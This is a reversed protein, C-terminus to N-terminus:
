QNIGDAWDMAEIAVCGDSTVNRNGGQLGQTSKMPVTGDMWYCTYLVIGPQNTRLEAQIGSWESGLMVVMEDPRTTNDNILQGNYGACTTGCHTAFEPYAQAFGLKRPQSWFDDTENRLIKLVEGTPLANGDIDLVTHAHPMFLTHNWIKQTSPNQFADLNFYTHQTPMIPTDTDPSVAEIKISWKNASLSYTVNTNVRGPMDTSNAPDHLSFTISNNTMATLNWVRYSWNNPGSHLTNPGDNKATHYTVNDLTFTANGIRGAYRGPVANYVPHAPDTASDKM